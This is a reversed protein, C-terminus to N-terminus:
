ATGYLAEKFPETGLRDLCRDFAEDENRRSLYTTLITEVAAPVDAEAFSPGIIRGVALDSSCM